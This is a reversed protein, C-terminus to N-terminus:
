ELIELWAFEALPHPLYLKPGRLARTLPCSSLDIRAGSTVENGERAADLVIVAGYMRTGVGGVSLSGRVVVLGYFEFGNDIELDGEVLLVGQGKGGAAIRLDLMSYIIPLHEFCPHGPVEPAGWNWAVTRDCTQGPGIAPELRDLVTDGTLRLDALEALDTFWRDASKLFDAREDAQRRTAPRGLVAAGRLESVSGDGYVAVGPGSSNASSQCIGPVSSWAAPVREIGSIVAADDVILDGGTALAADCCSRNPNGASLFLAVQRRGGWAGRARGTSVMLYHAVGEALGEDIRTLRVEFGDGSSLREAALQRTAGPQLAAITSDWGSLAAGLGAEAAYFAANGQRGAVGVRFQQAAAIYGVSVMAAVIVLAFVMVLLALGRRDGPRAAARRPSPIVASGPM